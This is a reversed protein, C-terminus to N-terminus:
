RAGGTATAGISILAGDRGVSQVGLVTIIPANATIYASAADRITELDAPRYNVVYITLATVDRPSAGAAQLVAALNAFARAAQAHLDTGALTNTSDVGLQGAVYLTRGVRVSQAGLPPAAVGTATPLATKIEPATAGVRPGGFEGRFGAEQWRVEDERRKRDAAQEEGEKWKKYAKMEDGTLIHRLDSEFRDQRDRLYKGLEQLREAYFMAAARDGDDLRENMKATAAAASDRQPRTAVMFSDYAQAYRAAEAPTLNLMVRALATDLPGALEVGPLKPASPGYRGAPGLGGGRGGYVGQTWAARPVLLLTAALFAHSWTVRM